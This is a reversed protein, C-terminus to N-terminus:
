NESKKARFKESFMTSLFVFLAAGLTAAEGIGTGYAAVLAIIGAATALAMGPGYDWEPLSYNNTAVDNYLNQQM